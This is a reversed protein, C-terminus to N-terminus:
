VDNTLTLNSKLSKLKNIVADIKSASKKDEDVISEYIEDIDKHIDDTLKFVTNAAKADM